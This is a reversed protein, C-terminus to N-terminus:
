PVFVAISSFNIRSTDRCIFLPQADNLGLRLVIILIPYTCRLRGRTVLGTSKQLSRNFTTKNDLVLSKVNKKSVWQAIHYSNNHAESLSLILINDWLGSALTCHGLAPVVTPSYRVRSCSDATTHTVRRASLPYFSHVDVESFSLPLVFGSWRPCTM